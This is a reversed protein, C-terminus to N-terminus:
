EISDANKLHAQRTSSRFSLGISLILAAFLGRRLGRGTELTANWLSKSDDGLSSIVAM